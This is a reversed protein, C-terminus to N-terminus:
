ESKLHQKEYALEWEYLRTCHDIFRNNWHTKYHVCHPKDLYFERFKRLYRLINKMPLRHSGRLVGIAWSTPQWRDFMSFLTANPGEIDAREADSLNKTDKWPTHKKSPEHNIGGHIALAQRIVRAIKDAHSALDPDDDIIIKVIDDINM